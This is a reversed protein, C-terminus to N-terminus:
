CRGTVSSTLTKEFDILKGDIVYNNWCGRGTEAGRRESRPVNRVATESLSEKVLGNFQHTTQRDAYRNKLSRSRGIVPSSVQKREVSDTRTLIKSIFPLLYLVFYLGTYLWGILLPPPCSPFSISSHPQLSSCFAPFSRTSAFVSPALLLLLIVSPFFVNPPALHLCFSVLREWGDLLLSSERWEGEM